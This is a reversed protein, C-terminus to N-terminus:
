YLLPLPPRRYIDMGLLSSTYVQVITGVASAYRFTREIVSCWKGWYQILVFSNSLCTKYLRVLGVEATAPDVSGSGCVCKDNKPDVVAYMDDQYHQWHGSQKWLKIDFM